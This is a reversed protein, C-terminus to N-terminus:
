DYSSIGVSAVREGASALITGEPHFKVSSISRTHGSMIYKTTYKPAASTQDQTEIPSEIAPTTSPPPSPLQAPTAFMGMDENYPTEVESM